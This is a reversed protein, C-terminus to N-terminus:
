YLNTDGAAHHVGFVAANLRAVAHLENERAAADDSLASLTELPIGKGARERLRAIRLAEAANAEQVHATELNRKAAEYERWANVVDRQAYLRAEDLAAQAKAIAAEAVHVAAPRGGGDALPLSITVGVQYGSAGLAPNSRGNYTQVSGTASPLYQARASALQGQASAIQAQAALVEPRQLLANREYTASHGALPFLSLRDSLTLASTLDIDLMAKLNVFAEDRDAAADEAAQAASALAAQSQALQYRAAKGVRYRDQLDRVNRRQYGVTVDRASVIAQALLTREYQQAASLAADNQQAAATFQAADATRAAAWASAATSPVFLPVSASALLYTQRAVPMGLQAIGGSMTTGSVGLQPFLTARAAAAQAAVAQADARAIRSDFGATRARTISQALSLTGTWELPQAAAIGLMCAALAAAMAPVRKRM